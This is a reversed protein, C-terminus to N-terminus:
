PLCVYTQYSPAYITLIYLLQLCKLSCSQPELISRGRPGQLQPSALILNGQVVLKKNKLIQVIGNYKRTANQKKQNGKYGLM